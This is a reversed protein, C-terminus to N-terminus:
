AGITGGGGNPTVGYPSALSPRMIRLPSDSVLAIAVRHKRGLLEWTDVLERAAIWSGAGYVLQYGFSYDTLREHTEVAEPDSVVLERLPPFALALDRYFGQLAATSVSPDDYPHPEAWRGQEKWWVDFLEDSTAEPEFALIDYSM